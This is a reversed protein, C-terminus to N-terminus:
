AARTWGTQALWSRAESLYNPLPHRTYEELQEELLFGVKKFHEWGKFHRASSFDDLFDILKEHKSTNLLVYRYARKVETPTHLQHLHYRGKFAKGKAFLRSLRGALSKMGRSLLDNSPAEVIIHIHDYQLTYHLVHLEFKKARRLTNQFAKLRSVTRLTGVNKNFKMTIHLPKKFNVTPRKKHSPTGSRNPRGAGKRKGGHTKFKLQKM